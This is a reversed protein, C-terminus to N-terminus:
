KQTAYAANHLDNWKKVADKNGNTFATMYEKNQKLEAIAQIAAAPGAAAGLQSDGGRRSSDEMTKEGLAVLMKFLKPNNGYGAAEIEEAFGEGGLALVAKVLGKKAEFKDGYEQKIAAAAAESVQTEQQAKLENAKAVSELEEAMYNKYQRGTIELRHARQEIVALQEPTIKAKELAAAEPKWYKDPSEPVGARKNFAGWQEPKWDDKPFYEDEKKGLFSKTDILSKAMVPGVEKWDNGKYSQWTPNARLDEPLDSIWAPTQAVAGNDSM